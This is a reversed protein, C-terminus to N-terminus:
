KEKYTIRLMEESAYYEQYLEHIFSYKNGDKVLINLDIAHDLFEYISIKFRSQEIRKELIAEFEEILCGVNSGNIERTKYGLFCLLRHVIRFDVNLTIKRTEREYLNHIFKKIIQVKNTPILGKNSWVVNILMKLLLPVRVIKALRANNEIEHSIIRKTLAHLCNKDLFEQIQKNEMQQLVFVPAPKFDNVYALPRSTLIIRLSPYENILNQIDLRVPKRLDNLVENLGDLFLTVKSKFFYETLKEQSIGMKNCACDFISEDKSLLKLELYIPIKLASRDPNKLLSNADNYAMYQLSTSKGMGPEGLIVMVNEDISQRLDDIKGERLTSNDKKDDWDDMEIAFLDIEEFKEKGTMHVFRKQWDQFDVVVQNLYGNIDPEKNFLSRLDIINKYITFLYIVLVSEIYEYMEKKSWSECKHSELNRLNYVRVLHIAFHPLNRVNETTETDLTLRNPNIHLADIFFALGKNQRNLTSYLTPQTLFLVKKLFPEVKVFDPFFAYMDEKSLDDLIIKSISQTVRSKIGDLGLSPNNIEYSLTKFFIEFINESLINPSLTSFQRLEEKIKLKIKEQILHNM